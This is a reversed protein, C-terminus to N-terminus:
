DAQRFGHKTYLRKLTQLLTYWEEGPDKVFAEFAKRDLTEIGVDDYVDIEGKNDFRIGGVDSDLEELFDELENLPMDPRYTPQINQSKQLNVSLWYDDGHNVEFASKYVQVGFTFVYGSPYHIRVTLMEEPNKDIEPPPTPCNYTIVEVHSNQWVCFNSISLLSDDKLKTLKLPEALADSIARQPTLVKEESVIEKTNNPEPKSEPKPKLESVDVTAPTMIDTQTPSTSQCAPLAALLAASFVNRVSRPFIPQQPSQESLYSPSKKM